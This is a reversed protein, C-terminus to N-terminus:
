IPIRPIFSASSCCSSSSSYALGMHRTAGRKSAYDMLSWGGSRQLENQVQERTNDVTTAIIIIM